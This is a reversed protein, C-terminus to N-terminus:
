KRSRPLTLVLYLIYICRLFTTTMIVVTSVIFLQTYFTPITDIFMRIGVVALFVCLYVLCGKSYVKIAAGFASSNYFYEEGTTAQQTVKVGSRIGAMIAMAALIFGGSGISASVMETLLDSLTDDNATYYIGKWWLLLYALVLFLLVGFDWKFPHEIFSLSTRRWISRNSKLGERVTEGL